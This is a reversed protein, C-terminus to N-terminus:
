ALFHMQIDIQLSLSYDAAEWSDIRSITIYPMSLLLKFISFDDMEGLLCHDLSM